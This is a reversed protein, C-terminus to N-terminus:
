RGPRGLGARRMPSQAVVVIEKIKGAGAITAGERMMAARLKTEDVSYYDRASAFSTRHALRVLADRFFAEKEKLAAADAGPQLRIELSVFIYNIVQGDVAIPVPVPLLKVYAAAAPKAAGGSALAPGCLALGLALVLGAISHRRM